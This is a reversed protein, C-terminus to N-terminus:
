VRIHFGSKELLVLKEAWDNAPTSELFRLLSEAILSSWPPHIRLLIIGGTQAAPLAMFDKDHTLIIGKTKQAELFLTKDSAGTAMRIVSHSANKLIKELKHSINEDLIFNM